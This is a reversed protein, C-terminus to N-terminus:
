IVSKTYSDSDMDIVEATIVMCGTALASVSSVLARTLQKKQLSTRGSHIRCQCHIYGHEQRGIKYRNVPLLRIKINEAEFIGTDVVAQFVADMLVNQQEEPFMDASYDIFIHPM